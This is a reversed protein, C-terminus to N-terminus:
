SALFATVTAAVEAPGREDPGFHDLKPFTHVRASPVVGALRDIAATVYPLKSKGGALLLVEASVEGYNRYSGDLRGVEQHERLNAGLLGFLKERKAGRFVVRLIASMLWHPNRRAAAPGTAMVFTAFADFPRGRELYRRYAPIWDMPILGDVSVGPEYVALKKIEPNRRAAELAVLGGFSHGFVFSADTAARVAALDACEAEIGYGDGQPGSGGRGRREITHVTFHAALAAALEAYDSADNLAGPVVILGPGAGTTVYNIRTGDASHVTSPALATTM